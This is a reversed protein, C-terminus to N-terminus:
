PMGIPNLWTWAITLRRVPWGAYVVNEITVATNRARLASVAMKTPSRAKPRARPQARVAPTSIAILGASM